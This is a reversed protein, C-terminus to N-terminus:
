ISRVSRAIYHVTASSRKVQRAIENTSLGKQHLQIINVKEEETLPINPRKKRPTTKQELLLIHKELLEIYKSSDIQVHEVDKPKSNMFYDFLVKAAEKQYLIIKEKALENKVRSTEIKALWMPFTELPLSIMEYRKGDSGTTTMIVMVSNFISDRKLKKHQSSWDIQFAECIPKVAVFRKGNETFALIKDQHFPILHTNM